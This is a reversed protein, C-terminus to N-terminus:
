PSKRTWISRELRPLISRSRLSKGDGCLKSKTRCISLSKCGLYFVWSVRMLALLPSVILTVGDIALAPLQYCLSKGGGTPFVVLASQGQILRIIAKEQLHQFRDFGFYTKLLENARKRIPEDDELKPRKTVLEQEADPLPRKGNTVSALGESKVELALLDDEEGSDLDFEDDKSM